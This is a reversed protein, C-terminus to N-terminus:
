PVRECPLPKACVLSRGMYHYWAGFGKESLIVFTRFVSKTIRIVEYEMGVVKPPPAGCVLSSVDYNSVDM